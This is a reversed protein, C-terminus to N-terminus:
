VKNAAKMVQDATRGAKLEAAMRRMWPDIHHLFKRIGSCLYNLGPEGEPTCLLRNKPCEGHCAFKVECQRCYEPLTDEKDLGFRMQQESLVMKILPTDKINGLCHEPYVYHDCSYVRGDHEFALAKGCIDAFYCSSAPMGMWLGLMTDFIRVFTTGVDRRLWEDFVAILFDGYDDPDVSWDTVISAPHGPRSRAQGLAPQTKTDWKGPATSVFDKPEVCPIFQLYTSKVEDRLFRYVELPHKANEHNLVALTNFEVGHKKLLEVAHIVKEFTPRCNRDKRYLDHLHPPGDLSLGVLFYNTRLFQCWEDDLLTGNTQLDNQIQKTPPCHIQQYHIVKHFFGLGLLTPEGGQWSFNIMPGPQYQIYHHIFRELVADSMRWQDQEGFLDKKHLYYCYTCNLNCVPGIPKAMM